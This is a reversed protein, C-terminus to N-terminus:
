TRVGSSPARTEPTLTMPRGVLSTRPSQARSHLAVSMSPPVMPETSRRESPREHARGEVREEEEVLASAARSAQSTSGRNIPEQLSRMGLLHALTTATDYRSETDDDDNDDGEEEESATKSPSEEKSLSKLRQKRRHKILLERELIKRNHWKKTAYKEKKEQAASFCRV